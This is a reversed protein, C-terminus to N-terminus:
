FGRRVRSLAKHLRLFNATLKSAARKEVEKVLGEKNQLCKMMIDERLTYTNPSKKAELVEAWCDRLHKLTVSHAPAVGGARPEGQDRRDIPRCQRPMKILRKGIAAM